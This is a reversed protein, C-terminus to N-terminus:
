VNCACCYSITTSAAPSPIQLPFEDTKSEQDEVDVLMPDNCDPDPILNTSANFNPVPDSNPIPILNAIAASPINTHVRYVERLSIYKYEGERIRGYTAYITQDNIKELPIGISEAFATANVTVLDAGVFKGEIVQNRYGLLYYIVDSKVENGIVVAPIKNAFGSQAIDDNVVVCVIEGINRLPPAFRKDYSDKMRQRSKEIEILSDQNIAAVIEDMARSVNNNNNINSSIIRLDIVDDESPTDSGSSSINSDQEVELM